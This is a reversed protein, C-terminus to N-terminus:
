WGLLADLDLEDAQKPSEKEAAAQSFGFYEDIIKYATEPPVFCYNGTKHKEAWAKVANFAGELTKGDELKGGGSIRQSVYEGIMVVGAHDHKEAIEDRIKDIDM